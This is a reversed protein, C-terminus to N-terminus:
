ATRAKSGLPSYRGCSYNQQPVKANFGLSPLGSPLNNKHTEPYRYGTINNCDPTPTQRSRRRRTFM